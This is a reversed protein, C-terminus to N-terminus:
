SRCFLSRVGNFRQYHSLGHTKASLRRPRPRPPPRKDILIKAVGSGYIVPVRNVAPGPRMLMPRCATKILPWNSNSENHFHPGCLFAHNTPRSRPVRAAVRRSVSVPRQPPHSVSPRASCPFSANNFIYLFFVTMLGDRIIESKM